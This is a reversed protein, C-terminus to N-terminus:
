RRVCRNVLFVDDSGTSFKPANGQMRPALLPQKLTEGTTGYLSVFVAATTGSGAAASTRVRLLVPYTKEDKPVQRYM